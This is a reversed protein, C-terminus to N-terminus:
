FNPVRSRVASFRLPRVPGRRLQRLSNSSEPALLGSPISSSSSSSFSFSTFFNDMALEIARREYTARNFTPNTHRFNKWRLGTLFPFPDRPFFTVSEPVHIRDPASDFAVIADAAGPDGLHAVLGGGCLGALGASAEAGAHVGVVVLLEDVTLAVQGEVGIGALVLPPLILLFKAAM